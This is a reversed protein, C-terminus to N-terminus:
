LDIKSGDLALIRYGSYTKYDVEKYFFETSLRHLEKFAEPLIRQRGKSFAQMSYIDFETDMDILFQDISTQISCKLYIFILLINM